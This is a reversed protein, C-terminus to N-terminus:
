EGEGHSSCLVTIAAIPVRSLDILAGTEPDIAEERSYGISLENNAQYAEVDALAEAFETIPNFLKM